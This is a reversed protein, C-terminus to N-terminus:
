NDSSLFSGDGSGEVRSQLKVLEEQIKLVAKKIEDLEIEMERARSILSSLEDRRNQAKQQREM